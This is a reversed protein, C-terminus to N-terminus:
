APVAEAIADLSDRSVLIELKARPPEDGLLPLLRRRSSPTYLLLDTQDIFSDLHETGEEISAAIVQGSFASHQRLTSSLPPITERYRTVLGLTDHERLRAVKELVASPLHTVYGITDARPVTRMVRDLHAFPTFVFDADEHRDLDTLPVARVTRQLHATIQDAAMENMEAHPGVLILKRELGAHDLLSTQEQFLYEIEADNLGLGILRQLSESVIQAGKEMRESKELPTREQVTYGSGVQAELLGEEELAQYAKRVTHFSVGLRKGLKRTSPLTDNVKYHGSAILYRLQEILQTSVSTDSERDLSLLAM